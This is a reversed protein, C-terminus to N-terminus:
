PMVLGDLVGDGTLGPVSPCSSCSLCWAWTCVPSCETAHEGVSLGHPVAKAETKLISISMYRRRLIPFALPAATAILRFVDTGERLSGLNSGGASSSSGAIGSGKALPTARSILSHLAARLSLIDDRFARACNDAAARDAKNCAGSLCSTSQRLVCPQVPMSNRVCSGLNSRSYRSKFAKTLRRLEIM